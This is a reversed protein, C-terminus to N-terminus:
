TQSDRSCSVSTAFTTPLRRTLAFTWSALLTGCAAAARERAIGSARSIACCHFYGPVASARLHREWHAREVRHDARTSPPPRRPTRVNWQGRCLVRLDFGGGCKLIVLKIFTLYPARRRRCSHDRRTAARMPAGPANTDLRRFEIWRRSVEGWIVQQEEYFRRLEDRTQQDTPTNLL